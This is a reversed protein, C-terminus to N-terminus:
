LYQNGGEGTCGAKMTVHDGRSPGSLYGSRLLPGPCVLCPPQPIPPCPSLGNRLHVSAPLSIGWVCASGRLIWLSRRSVPIVRSCLFTGGYLLGWFVHPELYVPVGKLGPLKGFVCIGLCESCTARASGWTCESRELRQAGLM